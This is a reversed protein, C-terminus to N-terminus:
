KNGIHKSLSRGNHVSVTISNDSIDNRKTTSFLDNQKLCEFELLADKNVKIASKKTEGLCYRNNCTKVM